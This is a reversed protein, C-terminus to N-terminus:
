CSFGVVHKTLTPKPVRKAHADTLPERRVGGARLDSHVALKLDLQHERLGRAHGGHVEGDGGDVVLAADGEVVLDEDVM